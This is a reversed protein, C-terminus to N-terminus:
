VRVKNEVFEVPKYSDVNVPQALCDWCPDDSELCGHYKCQPCYKEFDVFKNRHETAM